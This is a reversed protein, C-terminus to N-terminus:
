QPNVQPCGIADPRVRCWDGGRCSYSQYFTPNDNVWTGDLAVVCAVRNVFGLLVLKGPLSVDDWSASRTTDAHAFSALALLLIACITKM